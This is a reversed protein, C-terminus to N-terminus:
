GRWSAADNRIFRRSFTTSVCGMTNVTPINSWGALVVSAVGNIDWCRAPFSMIHCDLEEGM